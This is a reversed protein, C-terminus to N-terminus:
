PNLFGEVTEGSRTNELRWGGDAKQEFRFRDPLPQGSLAAPLYLWAFRTPPVHILSGSIAAYTRSCSNPHACLTSAHFSPFSAPPNYPTLRPPANKPSLM